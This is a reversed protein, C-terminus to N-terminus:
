GDTSQLMILVLSRLVPEKKGIDELSTRLEDEERWAAYEFLTHRADYKQGTQCHFCDAGMKIVMKNLYENYCEHGSM